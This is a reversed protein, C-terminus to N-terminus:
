KASKGRYEKDIFYLERKTLNHVFFIVNIENKLSGENLKALELEAKLKLIEKIDPILRVTESSMKNKEDTVDIQNLQSINIAKNVKDENERFNLEKKNISDPREVNEFTVTSPVKRISKIPNDNSNEVSQFRFM